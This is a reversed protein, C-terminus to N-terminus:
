ADPIINPKLAIMNALALKALLATDIHELACQRVKRIDCTFAIYPGESGISKNCFLCMADKHDVKSHSSCTEM